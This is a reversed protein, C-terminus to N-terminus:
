IGLNLHIYKKLSGVMENIHIKEPRKVRTIRVQNSIIILKQFYDTENEPMGQLYEWRYIENRVTILKEAGFIEVLEVEKNDHIEIVFMLSLPFLDKESSVIPFYFKETEADIKALGVKNLMLQELANDWLKIRDSLSLILPKGKKLLVPTVDDTLFEAGNICFSATLSSKGAGSEGCIMIGLGNYNFCSGHLPLIQRQHLIAGYVSGNLYLELANLDYGEVPCIEVVKGNCAYFSAVGEVEMSFENQSVRYFGDDYLPNEVVKKETTINIIVDPLPFRFHM